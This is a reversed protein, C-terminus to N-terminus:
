PSRTIEAKAASNTDLEAPLTSDGSMLPPTCNNSILYAAIKTANQDNGGTTIDCTWSGDSLINTSPTEFTPKTWWGPLYIYVAVKYDAPAVHWVQGQPNDFSGYPPVSTFEISPSGQGGPISTGSWNDPMTKDDFVDQMVPKMNGNKDWVGWCKGQPGEEAEKWTEDFAEFYFYKVNNARAWSVFNLFYLSANEPSPVANGITNGCSPWGTESVIVEKGGAASSVQQHWGHIASVAININIGEWYPYYNVVVKDVASIVNPHSLLIGYTDATSVSIGSVVQKVQNIYDILQNETLDGRRLVESGVIALDIDGATVANILCSIQQDNASLDNSLWAGMAIKLGLEHAILGAKELGNSCGFTRVWESYPAILEMRQRLQEESIQSGLNPDQGDIYPSFDLGHTRYAAYTKECDQASQDSENGTTDYASVSYCYTTSNSLGNDQYPTAIVSNILAGNRYIKYGAGGIDDTAANWILDIRSSSVANSILGSPVSPATTDVTGDSTNTTACAQSSQGSESGTSDYASMTYCYQTNSNLGTDSYATSTASAIYSSNRYIKYGAVTTDDTSANWSLDIRLASIVNAVLGTPVSPSANPSPIDGNSGSGCSFVGICCLLLIIESLVPARYRKPM